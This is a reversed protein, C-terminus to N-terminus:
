SSDVEAPGIRLRVTTMALPAHLTGLTGASAVATGQANWVVGSIGLTAQLHDLAAKALAMPQHTNKFHTELTDIAELRLQAHGRANVKAPPGDLLDWHAPNDAEFRVSDGDPSYGKVHFKGRIAFFPM